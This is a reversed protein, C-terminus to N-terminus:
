TALWDRRVEDTHEGLAPGRHRIVGPTASLHPAPAVMRVGDVARVSERAQVHPDALLAALDNVAAAPIRAGLLEDLVVARDREAVWRAVLADIADADDVPTADLLPFLRAHQAQTTGSVVVWEGDGTRYVNRPAGGPVRSGTRVPVAGGPTFGAMTGGLLQLVSEYMSVDVHQGRGTRDRAALAALAGLAGVVGTMADGLAVSPLVPPGDPEGTM